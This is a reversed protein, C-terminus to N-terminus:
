AKNNRTKKQSQETYSKYLITSLKLIGYVAFIVIYYIMRNNQILILHLGIFLYFLYAYKHLKKWSGKPMRKRVSIFSTLTLPILVIAALIGFVMSLTMNLVGYDELLYELFVVIHPMILFAGIISYEARVQRLHKQTFGKELVGTFMIILFFSLGTYGLTVSNVESDLLLLSMLLVIGYVIRRYRHIWKSFLLAGILAVLVHLSIVTM